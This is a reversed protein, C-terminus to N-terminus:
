ELKHVGIGLQKAERPLYKYDPLLKQGRELLNFLQKFATAIQRSEIVIGLAESGYSILCLKDEFTIWEVPSTYDDKKLWTRTLLVAPDTIRWDRTALESDQTLSRRKVGANPALMRLNHMAKFGYFDIGALSHVSLVEEKSGAVEQFIKGIEEEGQFYRIGPRENNKIYTATLSHTQLELQREAQERLKRQEQALEVLRTPNAARYHLKKAKDFREALKYEVLKDLVKYVNTRTEHVSKALDAPKWEQRELLAIYCKAETPTLAAASLDLM